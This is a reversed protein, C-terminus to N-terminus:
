PADKLWADIIETISADSLIGLQRARASEFRAPWGDVIKQMQADPRWNVQGPKRQPYGQVASAMEAATVSLAPLNFARLAGITDASLDHLKLLARVVAQVSVVPLVTEPKFPCDVDRGNLPERLIAAVSDSVSPAAKPRIVVIPLRLARGDLMGHRSQDSILQEAIVKHAGYSTQPTQATTDDVVGPLTGGFTAISSAFIFRPATKQARCLDLLGLLSLVNTEIGLAIDREAETTLAAALHFLSGVGGEFLQQRYGADRLDGILKRIPISGTGTSPAAFDVHDALVLESIPAPAEGPGMLQGQRILAATLKRGIFGAAGTIVVRM